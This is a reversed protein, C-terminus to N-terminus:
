LRVFCSFGCHFSQVILNFSPMTQHRLMHLLQEPPEATNLTQLPVTHNFTQRSWAQETIVLLMVRRVILLFSRLRWMWDNM